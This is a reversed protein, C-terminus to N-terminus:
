SAMIKGVAERAKERAQVRTTIVEEVIRAIEERRKKSKPVAIQIEYLKDGLSDIIDQSVCFSKIQRQVFPSSLAALLLYPNLNRENVVRIKYIHSQYLMPIDQESVIACTGILYTGDRVLLIDRAKVDQSQRYQQFVEASVRHKPDFKIEWNSIDSTRVFPIDGTGYALKGVEDGTSVAIVGKELLERIRIIEHTTKLQEAELEANFEFARPAFNLGVKDAPVTVGLPGHQCSRGACFEIYHERIPFLDNLPVKRARSDHGCWKAEAFFVAKTRNQHPKKQAV